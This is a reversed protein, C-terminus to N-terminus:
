THNCTNYISKATNAVLFYFYFLISMHMNAIYYVYTIVIFKDISEIIVFVACYLFVYVTVLLFLTVVSLINM